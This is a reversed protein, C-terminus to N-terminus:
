DYFEFHMKIKETRDPSITTVDTVLYGACTYSRYGRCRGGCFGNFFSISGVYNNYFERSVTKVKEAFPKSAWNGGATANYRKETAIIKM